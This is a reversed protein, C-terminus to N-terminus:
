TDARTLFPMQDLCIVQRMIALWSSFSAEDIKDIKNFNCFVIATRPLNYKDRMALVQASKRDFPFSDPLPGLGDDIKEREYFNAQAVRVHNSKAVKSGVQYSFPLFAYKETYFSSHEPPTVYKDCVMYDIFDAGTTGPYVLYSVQIPAPRAAM